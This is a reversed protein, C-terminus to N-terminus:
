VVSPGNYEASECWYDLPQNTEVLYVISSNNLEKESQNLSSSVEQDPDNGDTSSTSEENINNSNNNNQDNNNHLSNNNSNSNNHLSLMPNSNMPPIIVEKYFRCERTGLDHDYPPALIDIFVAPGDVPTIEHLNGEVPSLLCPSHDPSLVTDQHPKAIILDTLQWKSDNFVSLSPIYDKLDNSKVNKLRTFSRCRVSGILVKLIGFMGPHDHLPIRSGPRLIFIGMSFVENEMIHVYAVPATSINSDSIWRVNFGVDSPTLSRVCSLLRDLSEPLKNQKVATTTTTTRTSISTPSSSKDLSHNQQHHNTSNGNVCPYSDNIGNNLSTSSAASIAVRVSHQQFAHFALNAVTAIKTTM